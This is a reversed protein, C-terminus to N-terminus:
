RRDHVDHHVRVGARGGHGCRWHRRRSKDPRNQDWRRNGGEDARGRALQLGFRRGAARHGGHRRGVMAVRHRLHIAVLPGVVRVVRGVVAGRYRRDRDLRDSRPHHEADVHSIGEATAPEVDHTILDNRADDFTQGMAAATDTMREMQTVMGGFTSRLTLMLDRVDTSLGIIAPLQDAIQPTLVDVTDLANALTKANDALTDFGDTADFVSRLAWCAPIDFCHREWYLYSRMPHFIDDFDAIRDRLEAMTAAMTHTANASAHTADSLRITLDHLHRMVAIMATLKDIMTSVDDLRSRLFQLNERTSVAQASIQYPVSGHEMPRGLPRTISQVRVIGPVRFINKAIRDLVLMDRANRLSHDAEVMLIDPNMRASTFHKEASVYGINAPTDAPIYFRNDYSTRYGSLALVGLLAM